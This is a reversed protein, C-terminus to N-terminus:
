KLRYISFWYRTKPIGAAFYFWLHPHNIHLVLPMWDSVEGGENFGFGWRWVHLGKFLTYSWGGEGKKM